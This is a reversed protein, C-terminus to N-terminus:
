QPGLPNAVPCPNDIGLAFHLLFPRRLCEATVHSCHQIRNLYITGGSFPIDTWGPTSHQLKGQPTKNTCDIGGRLQSAIMLYIKGTEM